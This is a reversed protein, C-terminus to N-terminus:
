SGSVWPRSPCPRPKGVEPLKIDGSVDDSSKMGLQATAESRLKIQQGEWRDVGPAGAM